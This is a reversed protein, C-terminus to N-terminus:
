SKIKSTSIRRHAKLIIKRLPSKSENILTSTIWYKIKHSSSVFESSVEKLFNDNQTETFGRKEWLKAFVIEMYFAQLFSLVLGHLGDQFGKQLFFTKVFDNVPFRIADLFNIKDNKDFSEVEAATYKDMRLLFQSITEYNNHNIALDESLELKQEVGKLDPKSHIKNSWVVKEKKFFRVNYDPWWMESKIWKNFLINKRPIWVYDCVNEEAIESLKKALANPIQEDADLLLVWENKVKSIAFSRAPEVFGASTHKYINKTFKAAIDRTKDTSGDDVVIIEDAFSVSELCTGIKKEENLAIIVVSIKSM